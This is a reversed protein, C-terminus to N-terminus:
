EGRWRLLAAKLGEMLPQIDSAKRAAERRAVARGLDPGTRGHPEALEHLKTKAIEGPRDAATDYIADLRNMREALDDPDLGLETAGEGVSGRLTNWIWMGPAEDGPLPHPKKGQLREWLDRFRRDLM